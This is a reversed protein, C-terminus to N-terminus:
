EALFHAVRLGDGGVRRKAIAGRADGISSFTPAPLKLMQCLAKLQVLGLSEVSLPQMLFPEYHQKMASFYRDRAQPGLRGQHVLEDAGRLLHAVTASQASLPTAFDWDPPQPTAVVPPPAHDMSHPQPCSGVHYLQLQGGLTEM